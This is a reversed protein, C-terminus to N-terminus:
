KSDLQAKGASTLTPICDTIQIQTRGRLFENLQEGFHVRWGDLAEVGDRVVSDLLSEPLLLNPAINERHGVIRAWLAIAQRLDREKTSLPPPPDPYQEHNNIIELVNRGYRKIFGGNLRRNESLEDLNQPNARVVSLMLRDSLIYHTPRNRRKAIQERWEFLAAMSRRQALTLTQAVGWHLWRQQVQSAATKAALDEGLEWAWSERDRDRLQAQIVTTLNLLLCADEAAYRLQQKTLPRTTWDSLTQGSLLDRQIFHKCLSNLSAPFHLGVLGAGFQTDFVRKGTIGHQALLRLDEQGGHVILDIESLTSALCGIDVRMPDVIWVSEPNPALQVLM